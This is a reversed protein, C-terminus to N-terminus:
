RPQRSRGPMDRRGIRLRTISVASLNRPFAAFVIFGEADGVRRRRAAGPPLHVPKGRALVVARGATDVAFQELAITATSDSLNAFVALSDPWTFAATDPAELVFSLWDRHGVDYMRVLVSASDVGRALEIVHPDFTVREIYTLRWGMPTRVSPSTPAAVALAVLLPLLM